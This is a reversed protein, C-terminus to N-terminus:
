SLMLITIGHINWAYIIIDPIEAFLPKENSETMHTNLPDEVSSYSTETDNRNETVEKVDSFFNKMLMRIKDKFKLLILFDSCTRVQCVWKLM